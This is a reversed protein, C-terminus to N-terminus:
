KLSNFIMTMTCATQHTWFSQSCGVTVFGALFALLFTVGTIALILDLLTGIGTLFAKLLKM